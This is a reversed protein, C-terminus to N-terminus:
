RNANLRAVAAELKQLRTRLEDNERKQGELESQQQQLADVLLATIRDYKVGEVQGRGDYITLRPEVQVVEEAVFGVDAKGDSMWRFSVPRLRRLVSMGDHYKEISDKYRVSSSCTAFVNTATLCVPSEGAAALTVVRLTGEVLANGNVDLMTTADPVPRNIGVRGYNTIRMREALAFTPDTPVKTYFIFDASYNNDLASLRASPPNAAPEYAAFDISPASGALGNANKLTLIPAVASATNNRIELDSRPTTTGIGVATNTLVGNVGNVGGLVLSNSRGVVSKYGIATANSVGTTIDSNAGLLTLGGEAVATVGASAGAFTNSTGSTLYFGSHHGLLTNVAGTTLSVGAAMGLGSNGIGSSLGATGQAAYAGFFSNEIGTQFYGTGDGFYSSYISVTNSHGANRGFFSNGGGTTGSYGAQNGVFVNSTGTTNAQGALTGVFVNANGTNDAAGANLGIFVLNAGSPNAAGAGPGIFLHTTGGAMSLVRSGALNFQTSAEVLGASSVVNGTFNGSAGSVVGGSSIDGTASINGNVTQDDTFTNAALTAGATGMSTADPFLLLGTGLLRVNGNVELRESPNFTAIGINGANTIIMRQVNVTMFRLSPNPAIASADPRVNFFGSGRGFSAGSYGYNMAPGLQVDPGMGSFIDQTPTGYIHLQGGPSVTGIGIRGALEALNSDGLTGANDIWRAIKGQTGTGAINPVPQYGPLRVVSPVAATQQITGDPFLIGKGARIVGAVDLNGAATLRMVENDKRGFFDGFRFSLDGTTTVIAGSDGTHALRVISPIGSPVALEDSEISPQQGDLRLIAQRTLERGGSDRSAVTVRYSGAALAHDFSDRLMWDLVNGARWSSDYLLGGGTMFVQVRMAVVDGGGAFRLADSSMGASLPEEAAFAVSACFVIASLTVFTTRFM